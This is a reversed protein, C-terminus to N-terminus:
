LCICAVYKSGHGYQMFCYNNYSELGVQVSRILIFTCADIALLMLAAARLTDLLEGRGQEEM